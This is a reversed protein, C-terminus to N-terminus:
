SINLISQGRAGPTEQNRKLPCGQMSGCCVRGEFSKWFNDTALRRVFELEVPCGIKHCDRRLLSKGKGDVRGCLCVGRGNRLQGTSRNVKALGAAILGTDFRVANQYDGLMGISRAIKEAQEEIEGAEGHSLQADPPWQGTEHSTEQCLLFVKLKEWWIHATSNSITQGARLGLCFSGDANIHRDPCFAPLLKTDRESVSVAHGEYVATLEYLRTLRGSSRTAVADLAIQNAHVRTCEVWDPAVEILSQIPHSSKDVL